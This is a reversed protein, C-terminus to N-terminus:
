ARTRKPGPPSSGGSSMFYLGSIGGVFVTNWKSQSGFPLLITWGPSCPPLHVRSFLPFIHPGPSRSIDGMDLALFWAIPPPLNIETTWTPWVDPGWSWPPQPKIATSPPRTESALGGIGAGVCYERGRVAEALLLLFVFIHTLFKQQNNYPSLM